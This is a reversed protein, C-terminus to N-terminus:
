FLENVVFLLHKKKREIKNLLNINLLKQLLKKLNLNIIYYLFNSFIKIIWLIRLSELM